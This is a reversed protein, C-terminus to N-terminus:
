KQHFFLLTSSNCTNAIQKYASIAFLITEQMLSVGNNSIEQLFCNLQVCGYRNIDCLRNQFVALEDAGGGPELM